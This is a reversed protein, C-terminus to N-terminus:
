KDMISRAHRILHGVDKFSKSPDIHGRKILGEIRSKLHPDTISKTLHAFRNARDVVSLGKEIGRRISSVIPIDQTAEDLFDGLVPIKKIKGTINRIGHAVKGIFRAPKAFAHGVRKFFRGLGM